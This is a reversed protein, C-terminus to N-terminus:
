ELISSPKMKYTFGLEDMVRMFNYNDLFDKDKFDEDVYERCVKNFESQFRAVLMKNSKEIPKPQMGKSMSNEREERKEQIKKIRNSADEVLHDM